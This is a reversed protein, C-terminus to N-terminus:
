RARFGFNVSKKVKECICSLYNLKLPHNVGFVPILEELTGKGIYPRVAPRETYNM